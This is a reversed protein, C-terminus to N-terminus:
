CQKSDGKYDTITMPEWHSEPVMERLKKAYSDQGEMELLNMTIEFIEKDFCLGLGKKYCTWLASRYSHLLENLEEYRGEKHLQLLNEKMPMYTEYMAFRKETREVIAYYKGIRRNYESVKKELKSSTKRNQNIADFDVGMAKAKEVYDSYSILSSVMLTDSPVAYKPKIARFDDCNYKKNLYAEVDGFVPYEKGELVAAGEKKLLSADFIYKSMGIAIKEAKKNASFIDCWNKFLHRGLNAEGFVNKVTNCGFVVSKKFLTPYENANKHCYEWVNTTIKYYKRRSKPKFRIMHITVGIYPKKGEEKYPLEIMTTNPDAYSASFDPYAKNTMMSDVIRDARNEKKVAEIFKCMNDPTMAINVQCGNKYLCHETVAAHATDDCLYYKINERKCIGDVDTLLELLKKQVDTM